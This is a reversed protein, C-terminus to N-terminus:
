PVPEASPAARSWGRALAVRALRDAYDCALRHAGAPTAGLARFVPEYSAARPDYSEVEVLPTLMRELECLMALEGHGAMGAVAGPWLAVAARAPRTTIAELVLQAAYAELWFAEPVGAAGSWRELDARLALVDGGLEPRDPDVGVHVV